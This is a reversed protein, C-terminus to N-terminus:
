LPITVSTETATVSLLRLNSRSLCRYPLWWSCLTARCTGLPAATSHGARTKCAAPHSRSTLPSASPPTQTPSPDPCPWLTFRPPFPLPEPHQKIKKFAHISKPTNFHPSQWHLRTHSHQHKTKYHYMKPCVLFCLIPFVCTTHQWCTLSIVALRRDSGVLHSVQWQLRSAGGVWILVVPSSHQTTLLRSLIM